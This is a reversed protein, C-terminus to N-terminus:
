IIVVAIRVAVAASASNDVAEDVVAIPNTTGKQLTGDGGSELLDGKAANHSAELWAYVKMGATCSMAFVTDATSYDDSLNDGQLENVLAFLREAAGTATAHKVFGTATRKILHGPTIAADAIAEYQVGNKVGKLIVDTFAM